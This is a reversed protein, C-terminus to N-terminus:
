DGLLPYVRVYDIQLTAPFAAADVGQKGGWDVGVALNLLYNKM